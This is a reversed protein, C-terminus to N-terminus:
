RSEERKVMYIYHKIYPQISEHYSSVNVDHYRSLVQSLSAKTIEDASTEILIRFRKVVEKDVADVVYKNMESYLKLLNAKKRHKKSRGKVKDPSAGKSTKKTKVKTKVKPEMKSKKKAKM